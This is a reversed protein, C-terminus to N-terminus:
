TNPIDLTIVSPHTHPPSSSHSNWHCARTASLCDFPWTPLDKLVSIDTETRYQKANIGSYHYSRTCTVMNWILNLLKRNSESAEIGKRPGIDTVHLDKSSVAQDMSLMSRTLFSLSWILSASDFGANGVIGACVLMPSSPNLHRFTLKIDVVRSPVTKRNSASPSSSFLPM